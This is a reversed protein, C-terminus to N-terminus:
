PELTAVSSLSAPALVRPEWGCAGACCPAAGHPLGLARYPATGDESKGDCVDRPLFLCLTRSVLPDRADTFLLPPLIAPRAPSTQARPSFTPRGSKSPM